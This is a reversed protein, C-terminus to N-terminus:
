MQPKPTLKLNQFLNPNGAVRITARVELGLCLIVYFTVKAIDLSPKRRKTM